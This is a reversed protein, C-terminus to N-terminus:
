LTFDVGGGWWLVSHVRCSVPEQISLMFLLLPYSLQLAGYLNSLHMNICENITISVLHIDIVTHLLLWDVIDYHLWKLESGWSTQLVFPKQKLQYSFTGKIVM